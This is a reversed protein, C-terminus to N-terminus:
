DALLSNQATNAALGALPAGASSAPQAPQIAYGEYRRLTGGGGAIPTCAYSVPNRVVHFRNNPSAHPFQGGAGLTYAINSVTGTSTIARRNGGAYADAGTLGVNYIVLQDGAAVAVGPGLVDFAADTSSSFDLPDGPTASAAPEREARYRGATLIPLLELYYPGSGTVRVSNPLARQVDRAVRRLATDAADTLEARRAQDLYAHIPQRLFVAVVAAIVGTITIVLIMELLTFGHSRATSTPLRRAPMRKDRSSRRM